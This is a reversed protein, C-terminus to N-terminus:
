RQTAQAEFIHSLNVNQWSRLYLTPELKTSLLSQHVQLAPVLLLQLPSDTTRALVTSKRSRVRVCLVFRDGTFGGIINGRDIIGANLCFTLRDNNVCSCTSASGSQAYM